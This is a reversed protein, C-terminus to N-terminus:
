FTEQTQIKYYDNKIDDTSNRYLLMWNKAKGEEETSIVSIFRLLIYNCLFSFTM